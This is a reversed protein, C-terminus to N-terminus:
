YEVAPIKDLLKRLLLIIPCFIVTMVLGTASVLNYEGNYLTKSFIWFSITTTGAYQNSGTFLLIPGGQSLISTCTLVVLTSLTPWILPLILSILERWPGVGELRAAELMEVPIRYMAGSLLLMHGWVCTWVVYIMITNTATDPSSLLGDAPLSSGFLQMLSDIPGGNAVFIKFVYVLALGPLIGPLYFIYRFLKYGKVQKYLFYCVVIQIPYQVFVNVFFYKLTNKMAMRLSGYAGTATMKTTISDWVGKFNIMSWAGTDPDQFAQIFSQANVVWYWMIWSILPIALWGWIFIQQKRRLQNRSKKKTQNEM